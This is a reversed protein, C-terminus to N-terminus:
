PDIRMRPRLVRNWWMIAGTVFLVAPAVGFLAWTAKVTQDCLGPGRCPIGIGNIRGFHLYALWYIVQDVFRRRPPGTLPDIWDAIDQIREPFCLYIGSLGFVVAFAFSWFGIMSHLHWIARKWGVRGPLKVSRRWTKSGPWWIVIGSAAVLLVACAGAGNVTRGTEGALLNDHLDLIFAVARMGASVSDGLDSGTRPDFLRRKSQKGREFVVVVAQDPDRSRSIRALRYGPYLRRAAATLQDDTLRPGTGKSFIPAPTTARYLENWYVLVSGTVSIMLIYLGVAIGSWLHVQFLARRLWLKQPQRVWRQWMTLQNSGTVLSLSYCLTWRTM